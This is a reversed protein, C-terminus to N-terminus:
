AGYALLVLGPFGSVLGAIRRGACRPRVPHAKANKPNRTRASCRRSRLSTKVGLIGALWQAGMSVAYASLGLVAIVAFFGLFQGCTAYFAPINFRKLRETRTTEIEYDIAKLYKEYLEPSDERLGKLIEVDPILLPLHLHNEQILALTQQISAIAHLEPQGPANDPESEDVTTGTTGSADPSVLLSGDSGDPLGRGDVDAASQIPTEQNEEPHKGPNQNDDHNVETM